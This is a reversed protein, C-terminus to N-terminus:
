ASTRTKLTTVPVLEAFELLLLSSQYYKYCHIINGIGTHFAHFLFVNFKIKQLCRNIETLFENFNFFILDELKSSYYGRYWM